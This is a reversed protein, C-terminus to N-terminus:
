PPVKPHTHIHPCMRCVLHVWLSLQLDSGGVRQEDGSVDPIKLVAQCLTAPGLCDLCLGSSVESGLSLRDFWDIGFM